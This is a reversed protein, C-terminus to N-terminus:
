TPLEWVVGALEARAALKKDRSWIKTDNRTVATAILHVDVFGLGCGQLGLRDVHDLLVDTSLPLVSQMAQMQAVRRHWDSLNGLAVEALVFPHVLCREARVLAVLNPEVQRFHDVWVSTDVLILEM